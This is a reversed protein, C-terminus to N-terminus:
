KGSNPIEVSSKENEAPEIFIELEPNVLAVVDDVDLGSKVIVYDESKSGIEVETKDFGSGNEVYCIFREEEQFVADQPVFLTDPIENIIIKNSTTMGPKLLDSTGHIDVNVEFIKINSNGPKEKGLSAVDNIAGTFTSDQYADLTVVVKQGRKVKSIDVENVSTKSEMASLDPLNIIGQGGWAQDGVQFKRGQNSWNVGYVVLGESEATLTLDNVERQAKELENRKQRIEVEINNLESQQIIKKSEFGQLTQKYSLENKEHQLQAERRKAEAEFKMQELNLKSLEYSLEASKLDSETKAMEAKQNAVLKEKNSSAIELQAEADKLKTIAETQDFKAVLDGPKIYTGEPVLNIIKLGGRVRPASISISNKATIEGSETITILFNDRKVKYTPINGSASAGTEWILAVAILIIIVAASLYYKNRAFAKIRERNFPTNSKTKIIKESSQDSASAKIDGSM